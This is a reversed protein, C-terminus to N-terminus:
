CQSHILELEPTANKEFQMKQFDFFYSQFYLVPNFWFIAFSMNKLKKLKKQFFHM